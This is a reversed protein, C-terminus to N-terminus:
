ETRRQSAAHGSADVSIFSGQVVTGDAFFVSIGGSKGLHRQPRRPRNRRRPARRYWGSQHRIVTKRPVLGLRRASSTAPSRTATGSSSASAMPSGRWRRARSRHQGDTDLNLGLSQRGDLRPRDQSGRRRRLSAHRPEGGAAHVRRHDCGSRMTPLRTTAPTIRTCARAGCTSRSPTSARHERQRRPNGPPALWPRQRGHEDRYVHGRRPIALSLSRLVSIPRIM